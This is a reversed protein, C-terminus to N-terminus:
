DKIILLVALITTKNHAVTANSDEEMLKARGVLKENIERSM